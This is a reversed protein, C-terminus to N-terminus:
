VCSVCVGPIALQESAATSTGGRLKIGRAVDWDLQSQFPAWQSGTFTAQSDFQPRGPIPAGAESSPFSEVTVTVASASGEKVAHPVDDMETQDPPTLDFPTEDAAVQYHTPADSSGYLLLEELANADADDDSEPDEGAIEDFNRSVDTITHSISATSFLAHTIAITGELNDAHYASGSCEGDILNAM